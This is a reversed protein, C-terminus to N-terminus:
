SLLYNKIFYAVGDDENSLTELRVAEKVTPRANNMAVGWGVMQLMEIDNVDDGFAVVEEMSINQSEVLRKLAAGKNVGHAMVEVCRAPSGDDALNHMGPRTLLISYSDGYNECLDQYLRIIEEEAGMIFFKKCSSLDITDLDQKYGQVTVKQLYQQMYENELEYYYSDGAYVIAMVKYSRVLDILQRMSAPSLNNEQERQKSHMNWVAAGNFNIMYKPLDLQQAFQMATSDARGTVIYVERGTKILEKITKETYESCKTKDNVLTGDIDIAVAKIKNADFNKLDNKLQLKLEQM